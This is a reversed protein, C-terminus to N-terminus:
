RHRATHLRCALVLRAVPEGESLASEVARKQVNIQMARGKWERKFTHAKSRKCDLIEQSTAPVFVTLWPHILVASLRLLLPAM